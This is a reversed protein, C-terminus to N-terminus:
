ERETNGKLKLESNKGVTRLFIGGFLHIRGAPENREDGEAIWWHEIRWLSAHMICVTPILSEYPSGKSKLDDSDDFTYDCFYEYSEDYFDFMYDSNEHYSHNRNNTEKRYADINYVNM